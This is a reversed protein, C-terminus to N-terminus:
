ASLRGEEVLRQRVRRWVDPNDARKRAKELREPSLPKGHGVLAVYLQGATM